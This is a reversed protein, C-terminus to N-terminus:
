YAASESSISSVEEDRGAQRAKINAIVTKAVFEDTVGIRRRKDAFHTTPDIATRRVKIRPPSPIDEAENDQDRWHKGLARVVVDPVDTPDVHFVQDPIRVPAVRAALADLTSSELSAM